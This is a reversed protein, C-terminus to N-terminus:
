FIPAPLIIYSNKRKQQVRLMKFCFIRNKDIAIYIVYYSSFLNAQICRVKFTCTMQFCLKRSYIYDLLNYISINVSSNPTVTFLCYDTTLGGRGGLYLMEPFKRLIQMQNYIFLTVREKLMKTNLQSRKNM